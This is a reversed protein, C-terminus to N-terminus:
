GSAIVTCTVTGKITIGPQPQLDLTVRAQKGDEKLMVTGPGGKRSPNNKDTGSMYVTAGKNMFPGFNVTAEFDSPPPSGPGDAKPIRVLVFSLKNPDKVGPLGFNANFYKPKGPRKVVECGVDDVKLLHQGAHPDGTVVLSAESHHPGDAVSLAAFSAMVAAALTRRCGNWYQSKM